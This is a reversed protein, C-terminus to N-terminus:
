TMRRPFSSSSANPTSSITSRAVAPFGTFYPYPTGFGRDVFLNRHASSVKKIGGSYGRRVAARPRPSFWLCLGHNKFDYKSLPHCFHCHCIMFDCLVHHLVLLDSIRGILRLARRLLIFIQKVPQRFLDENRSKIRKDIRQGTCATCIDAYTYRTYRARCDFFHEAAHLCQNIVPVGLRLRVRVQFVLGIREDLAHPKVRLGTDPRKGLLVALRDRHIRVQLLNRQIRLEIRFGLFKYQRQCVTSLLADTKRTKNAKQLKYARILNLKCRGTIGDLGTNLAATNHFVLQIRRQKGPQICRNRSSLAACRIGLSVRLLCLSLGRICRTTCYICANVRM